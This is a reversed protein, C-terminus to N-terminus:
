WLYIPKMNNDVAIRIITETAEEMTVIEAKVLKSIGRVIAVYENFEILKM